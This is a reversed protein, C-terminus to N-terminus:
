NAKLASKEESRFEWFNVANIKFVRTRRVIEAESRATCGSESVVVFTEVPFYMMSNRHVTPADAVYESSSERRSNVKM